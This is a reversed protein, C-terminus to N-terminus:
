EYKPLSVDQTEIEIDDFHNHQIVSVTGEKVLELMALFSVVVNVKEEKTMQGQKRGSFESFSMKLSKMVRDTLQNIMEELSVVKEVITRAIKETKPFSSIVRKIGELLGEKTTDKEPSFVPDIHIQKRSTYMINKGFLNDVHMSLEKIRKYEKLRDELDEIDQQEEGSLELTPLLAKSKILALTSAILVFHASEAIPINEFSHVYSIFDDAVKSLSVDSIHMRRKEILTLLLDLPGEFSEQKIFFDQSM